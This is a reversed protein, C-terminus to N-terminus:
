TCPSALVGPLGRLLNIVLRIASRIFLAYVMEVLWKVDIRAAQKRQCGAPRPLINSAKISVMEVLWIPAYHGGLPREIAGPTCVPSGLVFGCIICGASHEFGIEFEFIRFDLLRRNRM